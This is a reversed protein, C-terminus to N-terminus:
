SKMNQRLLTMAVSDLDEEFYVAPELDKNKKNEAMKMQGSIAKDIDFYKDNEVFTVASPLSTPDEDFTIAPIYAGMKMKKPVKKFKIRIGMVKLRANLIEVSRNKATSNIKVDVNFPDGLVVQEVLRRAHPSLSHLMINLVVYETGMHDLDGSEMQGFKIPTNSNPERYNKSAKSKTNENKINTSSLSAVSFKEEAFQKLRLCYQPAAIIPRRTNIYRINGRSDKMPIQMYQATIWPFHAYIDSLRDIDMINTMPDMSVPIADMELISDIFHALQAEGMNSTYQRMEEAQSPTVLEIYQLILDLANYPDINEDRIKDLICMSIFNLELEFIQGANERNYMTSSNKIMDVYKGNRMRPMMETPVVKSIVGKGGYRDAVKDGVDLIRNEMVVFEIEVNSFQSKDVFKIGNQEQECMTFLKELNYSKTYGESQYPGVTNILENNFRIRDNYYALLQGNYARKSINAPNNCYISIDIIRGKLTIKEDSMMVSQLRNVSQSYISEEKKERRYAMLIGDKIEEGIDPFSKYVDDNGYLNLLIDNENMVIKVKRLLPAALKKSCDESIIVSDEMNDDLSMYVVNLNKGNTRNKVKDFATSTRITTGKPIVMGVNAYSDLVSNNHLYGYVETRFLYSIREIMYLTKTTDDKLILYYHHNPAYSFKPIKAIVQLDRDTVIISSSQDGYRNEYGTGIYPIESHSLVLSHSQHTGNMIKRAGSNTANNPINLGKGLMQEKSTLESSYQQVQDLFNINDAAM